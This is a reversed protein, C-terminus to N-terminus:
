RRRRSAASPGSPAGNAGPEGEPGTDGKPGADGKPGTAGRSGAPGTAGAPGQRVTGKALDKTTLSGNKVDAGTLSSNKVQKTSTILYRKAAFATGGLALFLAIMAVVFAPSPLRLRHM